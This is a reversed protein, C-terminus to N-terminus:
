RLSASSSTRRAMRTDRSTTSAAGARRIIAGARIRVAMSARSTAKRTGVARRRGVAEAGTAEAAATSVYM